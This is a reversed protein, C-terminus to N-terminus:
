LCSRHSAAPSPAPSNLVAAVAPTAAHILWLTHLSHQAPLVCRLSALWRLVSMLRGSSSPQLGGVASVNKSKRIQVRMVGPVPKMGLKQMAKRSKKESRSQKGRAGEEGATPSAPAPVAARDAPMCTQCVWGLWQRVRERVVATSTFCCSSSHQQPWRPQRTMAAAAGDVCGPISGRGSRPARVPRMWTRCTTTTAALRMM